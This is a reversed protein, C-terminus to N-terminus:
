LLSLVDAAILFQSRLAMSIEEKTNHTYEKYLPM